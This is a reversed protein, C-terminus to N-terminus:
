LDRSRSALLLPFARAPTLQGALFSTVGVIGWQFGHMCEWVGSWLLPLAHRVKGARSLQLDWPGSVSNMFCNVYRAREHHHTTFSIRHNAAARAVPQQLNANFSAAATHALLHLLLVLSPWSRSCLAGLALRPRCQLLVRFYSRPTLNRM